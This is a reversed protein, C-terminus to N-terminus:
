KCRERVRDGSGKGSITKLVYGFYTYVSLHTIMKADLKALLKPTSMDIRHIQALGTIGPRVSFVGSKERESILELQSPLCPRPGVLSMDGRLVNWLQPLEDLKTRRLICGLGTVASTNILHTAVSETDLHMTRLKILTFHKKQHGVRTQLYIPSGTDLFMIIILVLLLPLVIILGFIALIIDILRIM